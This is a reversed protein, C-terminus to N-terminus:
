IKFRVSPERDAHMRAIFQEVAILNTANPPPPSKRPKASLPLKILLYVHLDRRFRAATMPVLINRPAQRFEVRRYFERLGVRALRVVDFAYSACLTCARSPMHCRLRADMKDRGGLPGYCQAYERPWM